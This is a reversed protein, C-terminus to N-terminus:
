VEVSEGVPLYRYATGAARGMVAATMQQGLESLHIDHVGFAFATPKVTALYAVGDTTRAWPGGTPIALVAPAAPPVDYSDGPFALLGNVVIGFNEDPPLPGVVHHLGGFFEVHFPGLEVSRGAGPWTTAGPVKAAVDSTGVLPLGPRAALIKAVHAPFFHDAHVHTVVVGAARADFPELDREYDVYNGPDVILAAGDQELIFCAHPLKTIKV